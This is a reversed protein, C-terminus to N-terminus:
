IRVVELSINDPNEIYKNLQDGNVKYGVISLINSNEEPFKLGCNHCLLFRHPRNFFNRCKHCFYFIGLNSYDIGDTQLSINCKPCILGQPTIFKKSITKLGCLFHETILTKELSHSKCVPCTLKIQLKPSNCDPCTILSDQIEPILYGLNALQVLLKKLEDQTIEPLNEFQPYIIGSQLKYEPIIITLNQYNIEILILSLKKKLKADFEERPHVKQFNEFTTLLWKKLLSPDKPLSTFADILGNRFDDPNEYRELFLLLISQDEMGGFYTVIKFEDTGLSTFRPTSIDGMTQSTYINVIEPSTLTIDEPFTAELYPGLQNDWRIVGIGKPM